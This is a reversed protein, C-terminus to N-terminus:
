AFTNSPFVMPSSVEARKQKGCLLEVLTLAFPFTTGPGRSTVLKGSVVVPEESYEFDTELQSKVSSHSTVPQRPLGSSKAALSGACIMGVYKDNKLYERVLHQIPSNTSITEAGKAGGPIVLLDYNAPVAAHPSFLEDPVIKIGRSGTAYPPSTTGQSAADAAAVYASTCKFGARVLTDYTITFEMEETGDAILVLASPM